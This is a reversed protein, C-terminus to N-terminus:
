PARIIHVEGSLADVRVKVPADEQTRVDVYYALRGARQGLEAEIAWGPRLKLARRLAEGLSITAGTSSGEGEKIDAEDVEQDREDAVIGGDGADVFVEREGEPTMVDVEYVLRGDEVELEAGVPRGAIARTATGVAQVMSVRTLRYVHVTSVQGEITGWFGVLVPVIIGAAIHVIFQLRKTYQFLTM